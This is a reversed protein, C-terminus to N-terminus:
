AGATRMNFYRVSLSMPLGILLIHCTLGLGIKGFSNNQQLWPKPFASLPLVIWEMTLYILTGYLTGCLVAERMLINWHTAAFAFCATWAFAISFHLVLGLFATGTGQFLAHTGLLGSAVAKLVVSPGYGSQLWTSLFASALDLVGAIAGGIFIGPLLGRRAGTPAILATAM